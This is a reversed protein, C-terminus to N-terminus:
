ESIYPKLYDLLAENDETYHFASMGVSSAADVNVESDDFFFCDKEDFGEAKAIYRFFAPSPKSLHMEHSAYLTDFGDLPSPKMDLLYDWHPAFTNSGTVVKHGSARLKKVIEKVPKNERPHYYTVMIPNNSLDIDYNLELMKYFYDVDLYGDLMPKIYCMWDRHVSNLDLNYKECFERIPPEHMIVVGGVDFIFLKKDMAMERAFIM